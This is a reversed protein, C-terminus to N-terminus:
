DKKQILGLGSYKNSVEIKFPKSDCLENWVKWYGFEIGKLIKKFHIDHYCLFGDKKLRPWFLKLDLKGGEYTHDGDLYIYDYKSNNEKSFEKTTMVYIDIYKKDLLYSFHKKLDINRWFGQGFSHMKSDKKNGIDFGADVFDVKGIRNEQCAKAMMFPIFGYMSGVCLIRKPRFNKILSYHFLGYGLNNTKKNLNQSKEDGWRYDAGYHRIINKTLYSDIARNLKLIVNTDIFTRTNEYTTKILRKIGLNLKIADILKSILGTM